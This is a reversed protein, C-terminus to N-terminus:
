PETSVLLSGCGGSVTIDYRDVSLAYGPPEVSTSGSLPGIARGGDVVVRTVDGQTSVRVMIGEPRFVIVESSGGGIVIPVTGVPRGLRLKVTGGVHGVKLSLIRGSALDADLATVGDPVAIEWPQRTSLAFRSTTEATTSLRGLFRHLAYRVTVRDTELTVDPTSPEYSARYLEEVVPDARLEVRGAGGVLRLTAHPEVPEPASAPAPADAPTTGPVTEDAM